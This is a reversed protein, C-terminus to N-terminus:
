SLGYKAGINGLFYSAAEPDEAQRQQRLQEAAHLYPSIDYPQQPTVPQAIPKTILALLSNIDQPTYQQIPTTPHYQTMPNNQQQQPTSEYGINQPIQNQQQPSQYSIYSPYSPNLAEPHRNVYDSILHTNNVAEQYMPTLKKQIQDLRQTILDNASLPPPPSPRPPSKALPSIYNQAPTKPHPMFLSLVKNKLDNLFNM